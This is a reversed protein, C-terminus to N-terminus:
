KGYVEVRQLLMPAPKSPRTELRLYRAPRGPVQAGAQRTTVPV